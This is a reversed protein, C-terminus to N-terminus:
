CGFAQRSEIERGMAVTKENAPPSLVVLGRWRPMLYSEEKQMFLLREKKKKNGHGELRRLDGTIRTVSGPLHQMKKNNPWSCLILKFYSVGAASVEKLKRNSTTM